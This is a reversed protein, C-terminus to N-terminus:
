PQRDRVAGRVGDTSLGDPAYPLNIAMGLSTMTLARLLEEFRSGKPHFELLIAMFRNQRRVDEPLEASRVPTM